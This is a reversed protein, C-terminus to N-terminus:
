NTITFLTKKILNFFKPIFHSPIIISLINCFLVMLISTFTTPNRLDTQKIREYRNNLKDRISEVTLADSGTLTLKNELGDLVVDYESPLNNLIKVMFDKESIASSSHISEIETKLGELDSIWDEPDM